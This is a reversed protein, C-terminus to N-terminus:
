SKTEVKVPGAERKVQDGDKLTRLTKYPGTIIEEGESLGSKIEIEQDGKIGTTIPTFHGRGDKGFVFVGEVEKKKQAAGGPQEAPQQDKPAERPV